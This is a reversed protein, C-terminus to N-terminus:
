GNGQLVCGYGPVPVCLDRVHLGDARVRIRHSAQGGNSYEHPFIAQCYDRQVYYGCYWKIAINRCVPILFFIIFM